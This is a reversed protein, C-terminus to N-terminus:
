NYYQACIVSYINNKYKKLKNDKYDLYEIAGRKGIILVITTRSLTYRDPLDNTLTLIIANSREQIEKTNVSGKFTRKVEEFQKELKEIAKIQSNTM